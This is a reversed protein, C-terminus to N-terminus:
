SHLPASPMICIPGPVPAFIRCRVSLGGGYLAIPVWIDVAGCRLGQRWPGRPAGHEHEPASESLIAQLGSNKHTRPGCCGDKHIGKWCPPQLPIVSLFAACQLPGQFGIAHGSKYFFVAPSQSNSADRPASPPDTPLLSGPSAPRM